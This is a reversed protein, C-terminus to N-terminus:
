RGLLARTRFVVKELPSINQRWFVARVSDQKDVIDKNKTVRFGHSGLIDGTWTNNAAVVSSLGKKELDRYIDFNDSYGDVWVAQASLVRNKFVRDMVMGVFARAFFDPHKEGSPERTYLNLKLQGHLDVRARLLLQLDELSEIEDAFELSRRTRRVSIMSGSGGTIKYDEVKDARFEDIPIGYEGPVYPYIAKDVM